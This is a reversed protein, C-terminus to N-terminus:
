TACTGHTQQIHMFGCASIAGFRYTNIILRTDEADTTTWHALIATDYEIAYTRSSALALRYWGHVDMMPNFRFFIHVSRGKWYCIFIFFCFILVFKALPSVHKGCSIEFMRADLKTRSFYAIWTADIEYWKNKMLTEVFVFCFTTQWHMTFVLFSTSSIEGNRCWRDYNQTPCQAQNDPVFTFQICQELEHMDLLKVLTFEIM